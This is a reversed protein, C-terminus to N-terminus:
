PIVVGIQHAYRNTTLMFELFEPTTDMNMWVAALYTRKHPTVSMDLICFSIIPVAMTLFEKKWKEWDAGPNAKLYNTRLNAREPTPDTMFYEVYGTSNNSQFIVYEDKASCFNNKLQEYLVIREGQSGQMNAPDYWLFVELYRNNTRKEPIIPQGTPQGTPQGKPQEQGTATKQQLNEIITRKQANFISFLIILLLALILLITKYKRLNKLLGDKRM